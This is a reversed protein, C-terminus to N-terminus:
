DLRFVIKEYGSIYEGRKVSIVLINQAGFIETIGSAIVELIETKPPFFWYADFDYEAEESEYWNEYINVGNKFDGKFFIFFTLYPRIPSGRFGLDVDVVRPNTKVGNVVVKEQDLLAQMSDKLFELENTLAEEDETLNYYYSEPDHYDFVVIQYVIGTRSVAFFGQAYAPEVYESL